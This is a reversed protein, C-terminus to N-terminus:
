AGFLEDLQRLFTDMVSRIPRLDAVSRPPPFQEPDFMNLQATSMYCPQRDPCLYEHHDALWSRLAREVRNHMSSEDDNDGLYAHNIVVAKHSVFESFEAMPIMLGGEDDFVQWFLKQRRLLRTASTLYAAYTASLAGGGVFQGKVAEADKLWEDHAKLLHLFKDVLKEIHKKAEGRLLLARESDPIGDATRLRRRNWWDNVKDVGAMLIAEGAGVAALPGIAASEFAIGMVNASNALIKGGASAGSLGVGLTGDMARGDFSGSSYPAVPGPGRITFGKGSVSLVHQIWSTYDRGGRENWHRMVARENAADNLLKMLPHDAIGAGGTPSAPAIAVVGSLYIMFTEFHMDFEYDMRSRELMIFTVLEEILEFDDAMQVYTRNMKGMEEVVHVAEACSQFGGQKEVEAWAVDVKEKAQLFNTFAHVSDLLKGHKVQHSIKGLITAANKRAVLEGKTSRESALSEGIDRRVEALTKNIVRTFYKSQITRYGRKAGAVGAKIGIYGGIAVGAAGGTLVVALTSAAAVTIYVAMKRKQRGAFRTARQFFSPAAPRNAQVMQFVDDLLVDAMDNPDHAM